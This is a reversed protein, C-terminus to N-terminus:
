EFNLAQERMREINAKMSLALNTIELGPEGAGASKALTTNTERNIEQLLFDLRKGIEGGTELIRRLEQTHVTLRTLEEQIDSKDALLAAEEIIRTEPVGSGGLLETLRERLRAQFYPMAQARISVIASVAAEVEALISDVDKALAMGERERSANFATLCEALAALLESEFASDLDPVSAAATFVGPLALIVNLDPQGEVGFDERVQRFAALYRGVTAADYGAAENTNQRAIGARVDIHGRLVQQKIFARMANEFPALENPMYFHLDLGRHNVARLSCTLEGPITTCRVQAYGTM